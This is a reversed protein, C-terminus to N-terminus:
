MSICIHFSSFKFKDIASNLCVTRSNFDPNLYVERSGPSLYPNLCIRLSKYLAYCRSILCFFFFSRSRLWFFELLTFHYQTWVSPLRCSWNNDSSWVFLLFIPHLGGKPDQTFLTLVDQHHHTQKRCRMVGSAGQIPRFIYETNCPQGVLNSETKDLLAVPSRRDYNKGPSISGILCAAAVPLKVLFINGHTGSM